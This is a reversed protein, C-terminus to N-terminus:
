KAKKSAELLAATTVEIHDGTVRYEVEALKSVWDLIQGCEMDKVKLTIQTKKADAALGPDWTATIKAMKAVQDIAESLPTDMFEFTAKTKLAATTKAAAADEAKVVAAFLLAAILILPVRLLSKM